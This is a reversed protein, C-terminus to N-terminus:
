DLSTLIPNTPTPESFPNSPPIPMGPGILSRAFISESETDGGSVRSLDTIPLQQMTNDKLLTFQRDLTAVGYAELAPQALWDWVGSRDDITM